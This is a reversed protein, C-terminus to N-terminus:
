QTRWVSTTVGGWRIVGQDERGVPKRVCPEPSSLGMAAGLTHARLLCRLLNLLSLSLLPSTSPPISCQVPIYSESLPLSSQLFAKHCAGPSGCRLRRCWQLPMHSPSHGPSPGPYLQEQWGPKAPSAAAVPHFYKVKSKQEKRQQSESFASDGKWQQAPPRSPFPPDHLLSGAMGAHPSHSAGKDWFCRNPLGM